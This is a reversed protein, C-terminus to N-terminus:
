GAGGDIVGLDPTGNEQLVQKNRFSPNMGNVVFQLLQTKDDPLNEEEVSLSTAIYTKFKKVDLASMGWGEVAAQDAHREERTQKNNEPNEQSLSDLINGLGQYAKTAQDKTLRDMACRIVGGPGQMHQRAEVALLDYLREAQQNNLSTQSLRMAKQTM